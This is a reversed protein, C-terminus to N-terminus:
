SVGCALVGGLEIMSKLKFISKESSRFGFIGAFISGEYIKLKMLEKVVAPLTANANYIQLCLEIPQNDTAIGKELM